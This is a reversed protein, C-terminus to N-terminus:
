TKYKLANEPDYKIKKIEDKTLGYSSFRDDTINDLQGKHKRKKKIKKEKKEVEQAPEEESKEEQFCDTIKSM